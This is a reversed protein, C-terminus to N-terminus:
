SRVLRVLCQQKLEGFEFCYGTVSLYDDCVALCDNWLGLAAYSNALLLNGNFHYPDQILVLRSEIAANRHDGRAALLEAYRLHFGVDEVRVDVMARMQDLFGESGVQGAMAANWLTRERQARRWNAYCASGIVPLFIFYFMIVFPAIVSLAVGLGSRPDVGSQAIAAQITNPRKGVGFISVDWTVVFAWIQACLLVTLAAATLRAPGWFRRERRESQSVFFLVIGSLLLTGGILGTPLLYLLICAVLWFRNRQITREMREQIPELRKATTRRTPAHTVQTSDGSYGLDSLLEEASATRENLSKNLLKMVAAELDSPLPWGHLEGPPQPAVFQIQRALESISPGPFPLQGTLLRYAVVGLAWLDSQPGPRGRLQEPAMYHYTGGAHKEVQVGEQRRGIGFDTLVFRLGGGTRDLLINAPKIDRHVIQQAHAACLAGGLQILLTRVQEATFTDDRDLISKLDEGNVFEMAIALKGDATFYDEVSVVCPHKVQALLAPETMLRNVDGGVSDIIKLAVPRDPHDQHTAKYVAGFAGRGLEREIVYPGIQQSTPPTEATTAPSSM